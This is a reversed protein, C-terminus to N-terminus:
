PASRKQAADRKFSSNPMLQKACSMAIFILGIIFPALLEWAYDNGQVHSGNYYSYADAGVAAIATGCAFLVIGNLLTNGKRSGILGAIVGFVGAITERVTFTSFFLQGFIFGIAAVLVVYGRVLLQLMNM